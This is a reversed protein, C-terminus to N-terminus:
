IRRRFGLRAATPSCDLWSLVATARRKFCAKNWPRLWSKSKYAQSVHTRFVARMVLVCQGCWCCM